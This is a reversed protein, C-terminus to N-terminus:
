VYSESPSAPIEPAARLSSAAEFRALEDPHFRLSRNKGSSLNIAVLRGSAVWDDVM